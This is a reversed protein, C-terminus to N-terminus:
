VSSREAWERFVRLIEGLMTPAGHGLFKREKVECRIWRSSVGGTEIPDMTAMELPTSTLDISVSWGPNDVTRIVIEYGHEWRGDCQSEYWTELWRILPDDVGESQM